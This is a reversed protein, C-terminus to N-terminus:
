DRLPARGDMASDGAHRAVFTVDATNGIQRDLTSTAAAM